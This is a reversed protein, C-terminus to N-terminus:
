CWHQNIELASITYTPPEKEFKLTKAWYLLEHYTKYALNKDFFVEKVITENNYTTLIVYIFKM